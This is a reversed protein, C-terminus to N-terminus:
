AIAPASNRSVLQHLCVVTRDWRMGDWGRGLGVRFGVEGRARTGLGAGGLGLGLGLGLECGM